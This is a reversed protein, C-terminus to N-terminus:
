DQEDRKHDTMAVGTIPPHKWAIELRGDRVVWHIDTRGLAAIYRNGDAAKEQLTRRYPLKTTRRTM